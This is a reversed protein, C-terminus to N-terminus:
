HPESGIGAVFQTCSDDDKLAKATILSMVAALCSVSGLGFMAWVRLKKQLPMRVKWLIIIPTCLLCFDLVVHAYVRITGSRNLDGCKMPTKSKGAAVFDFNGAVPSCIFSNAFLFSVLEIFFLGLFINNIWLWTNSVLGTFRRVFLTISIKVFVTAPIYLALGIARM